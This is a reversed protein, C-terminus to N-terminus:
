EQTNFGGCEGCELGYFHFLTSSNKGCDNCYINKYLNKKVSSYNLTAKVNFRSKKNEYGYGYWNVFEGSFLKTGSTINISSILFKGFLTDVIDGQEIPIMENPIPYLKIQKRIFEWQSTLDCISKKCHPCKYNSQQIYKTYCDNHIFHSCPLLFSSSQSNFTSESCIVCIGDTWKNMKGNSNKSNSNKCEHEHDHEHEHDLNNSKDFCAGCDMCHFLSQSTGIRCIGCDLCHYIQKTTWIQCIECHSNSFKICCDPNSCIVSPKQELECSNCIIDTIHINKLDCCDREMHCRKCPDIIGCCGFKFRSCQKEYHSCKLSNNSKNQIRNTYNSSFIQQIKINKEKETLSMDEKIKKILERKENEDM